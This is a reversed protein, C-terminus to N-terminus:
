KVFAVSRGFRRGDIGVVIKTPDDGFKTAPSLKRTTPLWM